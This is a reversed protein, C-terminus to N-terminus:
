LRWYTSSLFYKIASSLHWKFYRLNRHSSRQAEHIVSAESNLAVKLGKLRLRAGLDVDEFYLFFKEDFGNLDAYIDSRFLMFMGGIWDPYITEMAFPHYDNKQETNFLRKVITAPSPFRRASDEVFGSPSLIEPGVVAVSQSQLTKLLAPFPDENFRIDPNIVCFYEGHAYSFAKNHNQAFGLRSVNRVVIIQFSFSDVDFPLPEDINLTLILELSSNSCHEQIAHLLNQILLLQSTSVVSISVEPKESKIEQNKLINKAVM